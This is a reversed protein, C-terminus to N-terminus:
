PVELDISNGTVECVLPYIVKPPSIERRLATPPPTPLERFQPIRTRRAQNKQDPLNIAETPENSAGATDFYALLETHWSDITTAL